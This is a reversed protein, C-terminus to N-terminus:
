LRERRKVRNGYPTRRLQQACEALITAFSCPGKKAFPMNRFTEERYKFLREMGINGKEHRLDGVAVNSQHIRDDPGQGLCRYRAQLDPRQTGVPVDSRVLQVLQEEHHLRDAGNADHALHAVGFGM